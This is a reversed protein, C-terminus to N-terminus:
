SSRETRRRRCTCGGNDVVLKGDISLRSGDDSETYFM